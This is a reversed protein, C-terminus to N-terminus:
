AIRRYSAKRQTKEMLERKQHIVLEEGNEDESEYSYSLLVSEVKDGHPYDLIDDYVLTAGVPMRPCFFSMEELCATVHHPGDLVVCAYENVIYKYNKYIPVGDYFRDFFETDEMTFITLNCRKDKIYEYLDIMTQNRMENTYDKLPPRGWHTEDMQFEVNGWPDIGIFDRNFDKNAVAADILIALGGGRRVGLECVLGPVDKAAKMANATVHYDLSDVGLTM